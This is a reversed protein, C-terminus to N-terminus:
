SEETAHIIEKSRRRMEHEGLTEADKMSTQRGSETGGHARGQMCGFRGGAHARIRYNLRTMYARREKWRPEGSPLIILASAQLM